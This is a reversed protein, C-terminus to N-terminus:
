QSWWFHNASFAAFLGFRRTLLEGFEIAEACRPLTEWTKERLSLQAESFDLLKDLTEVLAMQEELITYDALTELAASLQSITCPPFGNDATSVSVLILPAILCFALLKFM